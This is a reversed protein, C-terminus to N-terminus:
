SRTSMTTDFGSGVFTGVTTPRTDPGVSAWKFTKFTDAINGGNQLHNTLWVLDAHLGSTFQQHWTRSLDTKTRYNSLDDAIRKSENELRTAESLLKSDLTQEGDKRGQTETALDDTLSKFHDNESAKLEDGM